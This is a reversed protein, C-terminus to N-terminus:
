QTSFFLFQQARAKVPEVTDAPDIFYGFLEVSMFYSFNLQNPVTPLGPFFWLERDVLLDNTGNCNADGIFVEGPGITAYTPRATPDFNAPCRWAGVSIDYNKATITDGSQATVKLADVVLTLTPHTNAIVFSTRFWPAALEVRTGAADIFSSPANIVIPQSPSVSLKIAETFENGSKCQIVAAASAVILLLRYFHQTRM